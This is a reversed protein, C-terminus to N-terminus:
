CVGGGERLDSEPVIEAVQGCGRVSNGLRVEEACFLDRLTLRAERARLERMAHSRWIGPLLGCSLAPTRWFGNRRLFLSSISGQTLEGKENLFLVEHFGEKRAKRLADDLLARNTTKHYLFVDSSDVPHASIRIRLKLGEWRPKRVPLIRWEVRGDRHLLMRICAGEKRFVPDAKLRKELRMWEGSASEPPVPRGFYLQSRGARRWHEERFLFGDAPTWLITEFVQFEPEDLVAYRSKLLAEKWEEEPSSDFVIGGSIGSEAIGNEFLITRIAVNLRFRRGPLFCGISGTYLKRPSKECQAIWNVARIKPAGTISAPPFTAELIRFLSTGPQLIGHVTSIMQHVSRYTEVHFLPDVGVSGPKCIRGLDNRVMDTIMLNEARNKEDGALWRKQREDADAEPLRRATGKMPSSVIREGDSELFLEPSMSVIKREGFNLFAAYPAPHRAALALFVEEAPVKAPFAIRFTLNAQYLNGALINEKIGAFATRYEEESWEPVCAEMPPCGRYEPLRLVEGAREFLGIQLLPFREAPAARLAPDLANGLEYSFFGAGYLGRDIWDELEQLLPRIEDTRETQLIKVPQEFVGWEPANGTKGPMSVLVTGPRRMRNLLSRVAPEPVSESLNFVSTLGM